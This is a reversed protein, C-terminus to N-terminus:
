LAATESICGALFEMVARIAPSRRLDPYTMLWLDRAPPAPEIPVRELDQDPDGMLCPLVAIGAGARAAAQTNFHDSAELAIPRGALIRRLWLQEPVHALAPSFAIFEWSEPPLVAYGKAAYAAFRMTGIKRAVAESPEPRAMRVAVEAEGRDLAAFFPSATLVLKLNPHAQRFHAIRPAICPAALSVPVSVRVTGGLGPAAGRARREIAQAAREMEEALAAIAVGDETLPCRRPLRDILRLSLDAELAAVRRGITAHDLKLARAAASLSGARALALFHHLDQWDLMQAYDCLSPSIM